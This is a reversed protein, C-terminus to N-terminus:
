RKLHYVATAETWDSLEIKNLRRVLDSIMGTSKADYVQFIGEKFGISLLEEKRRTAIIKIKEEVSAEKHNPLFMAKLHIPSDAPPFQFARSAKTFNDQMNANPLLLTVSGDAAISFIYVYADESAQYFIRVEEGEKLTAKSLSLKISFGEGKEHYLPQVIAKIKIRYLNREKADWGSTIIEEKTIKGRVSAYLLDDAIQYNSVLTHSKIFTGVAKEVAKNQADRRAREKVEAQTEIEGMYAQGEIEILVPKDLAHVLSPCVLLLFLIVIIERLRTEKNIMM